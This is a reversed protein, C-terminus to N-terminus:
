RGCRLSKRAFSGSGAVCRGRWPSEVTRAAFAPLGAPPSTDSNKVMLTRQARQRPCALDSPVPSAPIGEMPSCRKPLSPVPGKVVRIPFISFRINDRREPHIECRRAFGRQNARGDTSRARARRERRCAGRKLRACFRSGPSGPREKRSAGSCNRVLSAPSFLFGEPADARSPRRTLCIDARKRSDAGMLRAHAMSHCIAM